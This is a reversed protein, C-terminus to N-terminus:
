TSGLRRLLLLQGLASAVATEVRLIPAGLSVPAFGRAVFTEVERPIWGGEPGIALTIPHQDGHPVVDEIPPAGPHAILKLGDGTAEPWRANMMEMLRRYIVVEPLHTTAGQEAGLRVALAIADDALRPSSLYSKDVRWANSLMIRAVAFSAAAEIVRTLVKPRPIALVLDIPLPLSAPESASFQLTMASGDDALIEATGIPGGVVGAKIRAGVSAGLVTRVHDARRDRLICTSDALESPDVLLLNVSAHDRTFREGDLGPPATYRDGHRQEIGVLDGAPHRGAPGELVSFEVAVEHEGVEDFREAEHRLDRQDGLPHVMMGLPAVHPIADRDIQRGVIRATDGGLVEREGLRHIADRM